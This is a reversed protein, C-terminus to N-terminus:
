TVVVPVDCHTRRALSRRYQALSFAVHDFVKRGAERTAAPAGPIRQAQAEASPSSKPLKSVVEILVLTIGRFPTLQGAPSALHVGEAM